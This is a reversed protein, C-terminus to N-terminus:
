SDPFDKQGAHVLTRMVFELNTAFDSINKEFGIGVGKECLMARACPANNKIEGAVLPIVLRPDFIARFDIGVVARHADILHMDTRPLADRLVAVAAQTIELQAVAQDRVDLFHAEGVNLEHGHHLM